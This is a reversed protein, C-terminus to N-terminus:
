QRWYTGIVQVGPADISTVKKGSGIDFVDVQGVDALAVFLYSPRFPPVFAGSFVFTSVNTKIAGKASHGLAPLPVNQNFQTVQDNSAGLNRVEDMGVDVPANGSFLDRVPTTADVGGFRQVVTWEKQRFTPPVIFGGTNQNTSVQGSPSSTLELRSVQGLGSDDVHAVFVASRQSTSDLVIRRARAFTVEPVVGIVDDFGLGNVGTPGSEYVAVTGDQNLIYAYYVAGLNGTFEYRPTVAVDFPANLFGSVVKQVSFDLAGLITATNSSPSVVVIAEGDPQYSVATPGPDVRTEGIIQHFTSSLPNIDIFTVSGSSFNTVALHRLNPSMAMEIPDTLRISDLITMRNSNVVLVQRNDRDLVYLFHGLQQRTTYPCLPIPPPPSAPPPQPGQFLGPSTTDLLGVQGPESAFPNGQTLLNLPSALCPTGFTLVGAFVNIGVATTVTPEEGFISRGPNPPPFRLPPPNPHPAVTISNGPQTTLTLPNLQNAGTTNANLNENNFILDLPSGIQIDGIQGVIPDRLLRTEGATDQTLTFVGSGGADLTSSGPALAPQVGTRGINPNLPFRSDALNGTGQGFGNLDIVSIGPSSGGMGLYIAEPAVPANVIGPGEGTSFSTNADGGLPSATLGLISASNALIDVASEGPLVYAPRVSYTCLDGFGMPDAYHIVSFTQSAQTVSLTIGGSAPVMNSPDFFTGVTGPQVPKNFQLLIPSTPDINADGNGPSIELRGGQIRGLVDPPNADAGVTTATCVEHELVKSDTDRVANSIVFRLLSTSPFTEFSSLNNDTDAIFVFAKPSVLDAAGSFGTPFGAAEAALIRLNDPDNEDLEVAQVLELTGGRNYFSYGGVFGRGRIIQTDETAPDYALLSVATTLGSNTQASLQDSLISEVELKHSFRLLMFQNGPSGDPLTATTPFAAVPLVGNNGSSNAQLTSIDEINLVTATPNGFADAQRIRYPFIQGLGTSILSVTFPGRNDPDGTSGGACGSLAFIAAALAASGLGATTAWGLTPTKSM